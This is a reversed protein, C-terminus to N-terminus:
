VQGKAFPNGLAFDLLSVPHHGWGPLSEAPRSLRRRHPNGPRRRQGHQFRHCGHGTQPRHVLPPHARLGDRAVTRGHVEHYVPEHLSPARQPLLDRVYDGCSEIYNIEELHLRLIRSDSRLYIVREEEAEHSTGSPTAKGAKLTFWRMAKNAAQFFTSFGFDGTLYDLADLRFCDAAYRETDAVFIVRTHSSLLRCFDMGSIEGTPASSLGVVYVDVKSVYYDKLAALPDTYSGCLTLFPINRVFGQLKELIEADTHLLACNLNM